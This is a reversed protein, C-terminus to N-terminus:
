KEENLNNKYVSYQNNKYISNAIDDKTDGGKSEDYQSGNFSRAVDIYKRPQIYDLLKLLLFSFSVVLLFPTCARLYCNLKDGFTPDAEIMVTKYVRETRTTVDHWNYLQGVIENCEFPCKVRDTPMEFIDHNKATNISRLKRKRNRKNLIANPDITKEIEQRTRKINNLLNYEDNSSPLSSSATSSSSAIGNQKSAKYSNRNVIVKEIAQLVGAFVADVNPETLVILSSPLVEPIGGVKTSVVQLGCSAAEVIAM